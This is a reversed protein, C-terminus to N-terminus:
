LLKALNTAHGTDLLSRIADTTTFVVDSIDSADLGDNAGTFETLTNTYDLANWEHQMSELTNIANWLDRTAQRAISIYDSQRDTAATM